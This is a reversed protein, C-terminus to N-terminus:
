PTVTCYSQYKTCYTALCAPCMIGAMIIGGWIFGGCCVWFDKSVATCTTKMFSPPPCRLAAQYITASSTGLPPTLRSQSTSVLTVQDESEHWTQIVTDLVSTHDSTWLTYTFTTGEMQSSADITILESSELAGEARVRIVQGTAPSVEQELISVDTRPQQFWPVEDGQAQAAATPILEPALSAIATILATKMSTSLFHRRKM